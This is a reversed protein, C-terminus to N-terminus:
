AIKQNFNELTENIGYVNMLDKITYFADKYDEKPHKEGDRLGEIVSSVALAFGKYDDEINDGDHDYLGCIDMQLDLINCFTEYSYSKRGEPNEVRDMAIEVINSFGKYDPVLHEEM